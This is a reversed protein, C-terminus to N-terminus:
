RPLGIALKKSRKSSYPVTIQNSCSGEFSGHYSSTRSMEANDSRNEPWDNREVSPMSIFQNRVFRMKRKQNRAAAESFDSVSAAKSARLLATEATCMDLNDSLSWRSEAM